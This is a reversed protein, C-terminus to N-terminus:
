SIIKQFGKVTNKDLGRAFRAPQGYALVSAESAPQIFMSCSPPLRRQVASCVFTTTVPIRLSAFGATMLLFRLSYKGSPFIGVAPCSDLLIDLQLFLRFSTFCTTVVPPSLFSISSYLSGSSLSSCLIYMPKLSTTSSWPSALTLNVMTKM